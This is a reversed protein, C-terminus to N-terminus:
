QNGKIGFEAFALEIENKFSELSSDTAEGTDLMAEIAAEQISLAIAAGHAVGKRYWNAARGDASGNCRSCTYRSGLRNEDRTFDHIECANLIRNNEQVSALLSQRDGKDM